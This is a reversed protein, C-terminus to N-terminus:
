RLKCGFQDAESNVDDDGGAVGEGRLLTQTWYTWSDRPALAAALLSAAAATGVAVGAARWRRTVLLYVVFIAPTLKIATALGIGVGVLRSHRPALVLLDLLILAWLVANVQGLMFTERIPELGSALVLTLGFTLWAPWGLRGALPRTLLWVCWSLLAASALMVIALSAGYSLWAMPRMLMATFPPYTYGLQGQTADPKAFEYLPHGGDWWRMADIYITLDNFEHRLGYWAFGAVAAATVLALLGVQRILVPQKSTAAGSPTGLSV